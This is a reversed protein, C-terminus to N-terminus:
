TKSKEISDINQILNMAESKSIGTIICHYNTDKIKWIAINSLNM